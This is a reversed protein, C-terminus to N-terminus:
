VTPLGKNIPGLTSQAAPSGWSAPSCRSPVVPTLLGRSTSSISIRWFVSGTCRRCSWEARDLDHVRACLVKVHMALCTLATAYRVKLAAQCSLVYYGGVANFARAWSPDLESSLSAV